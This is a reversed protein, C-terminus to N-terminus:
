GRAADRIAEAVRVVQLTEAPDHTRVVNAGNLVAIATASLTGLLRDNPRILGLVDGIFSKRSIGVCIPRKLVKLEELRALIHLDFFTATIYRRGKHPKRALAGLRKLRAPWYGIAPDVVVRGLSIGHELGIQLSQKLALKIEEMKYVDGPHQRTAMLLASCGYNAVVEAMKRDAKLGSIDNIVTAGSEIAAAAVDARQTDASIPADIEKALSKIIPILERMERRASIPKSRPGTGMAGVDIVCAGQELMELAREIAEGKSKVISGNYFSDPSLNLAGIIATPRGEGVEISGLKARAM